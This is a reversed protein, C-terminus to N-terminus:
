KGPDTADADKLKIEGPGFRLEYHRLRIGSKNSPHRDLQVNPVQLRSNVADILRPAETDCYELNFCRIIAPGRYSTVPNKSLIVELPDENIKVKELQGQLALAASRQNKNNIYIYLRPKFVGAIEGLTHLFKQDSPAQLLSNDSDTILKKLLFYVHKAKDADLMKSLEEPRPAKPAELLAAAAQVLASIVDPDKEQAILDLFTELATKSQEPTLQNAIKVFSQALVVRLPGKAKQLGSLSREVNRGFSDTAQKGFSDTTKNVAIELFKNAKEQETQLKKLAAETKLGAAIAADRQRETENKQQEVENKQQEVENKQQEVENKRWDFGLVVGLLVFILILAFWFGINLTKRKQERDEEQRRAAAAAERSATILAQVREWGGGYREAWAANRSKLWKARDETMDPPLVNRDNSEFSEVQVLLSRWRLDSGFEEVLWGKKPDAMRGWCRMLAEHGVDIVTDDDISEPPGPRLFSRTEARMAEIVKKIEPPELGTEKVLRSFPIPRRIARGQRDVETLARMVQEVILEARSGLESEALEGMVSDAHLSLANSMRGICDYLDMTLRREGSGAISDQKGAQEWLRMLAHQLLPLADSEKASDNLLQEVLDHDITAGAKIVPQRIVAEIQERILRPVLYQGESIAEPLGEFRICDGIYDARMTLTVRIPASDTSAATLLLAVFAAAEDEIAPVAADAGRQPEYRFIEEFQDVLLLLQKGDEPLWERTLDVLGFASRALTARVHDVLASSDAEEPTVLHNEALMQIFARALAIQPAGRPRMDIFRWAAKQELQPLLGAYVLSSKGVGSGGVVAILDNRDLRGRLDKIQQDRGFFWPADARIFPRLGPFPAAISTTM